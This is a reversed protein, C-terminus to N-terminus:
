SPHTGHISMKWVRFRGHLRLGLFGQVQHDRLLCRREADVGAAQAHVLAEVAAALEAEEVRRAVDSLHLASFSLPLHQVTLSKTLLAQHRQLHQHTGGKIGLHLSGRFAAAIM